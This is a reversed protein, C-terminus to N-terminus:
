YSINDWPGAVAPNAQLAGARNGGAIDYNAVTNSYSVNRVITNSAFDVDIGVRSNWVQNGDCVALSAPLKIGGFAGATSNDYVVNDIVRCASNAFIGFRGNNRATCGKITTFNTMFFGHQANNRSVVGEILCHSGASVGSLTAGEVTCNRIVANDGSVIGNTAGVGVACGEIRGNQGVTIGAGGAPDVTCDQVLSNAGASIGTTANVVCGSVIGQSGVFIGIPANLITCNRVVGRQALFIAEQQSDFITLSEVTTDESEEGNIAIRTFGRVFGNRIVTGRVGAEIVVAHKGLDNGDLSFGNLDLTVRDADIYIASQDPAPKVHETLYYSGPETIVYVANSSAPLRQVPTRPEVEDLTKLTPSVPGAPPNLPGAVLTASFASALVAMVVSKM